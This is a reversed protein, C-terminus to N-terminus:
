RIIVVRGSLRETSTTATVFYVGTPVDLHIDLSYNTVTSIEKIIEGNIGTILVQAKEDTGSTINISFDGNAPNPKISINNATYNLINVGTTNRIFRVRSHSFDAIYINGARDLTIGTAAIGAMSALGGDGSFAISGNGAVTTIIGNSTAPSIKRVRYNYGDAVYLNGNNDAYVGCPSNLKATTAAISDGNYGAYGIGAITSIIGSTNVKRINNNDFDAVYINGSDDLAIGYPARLTAATAPGGDGSIGLVGGIGAITSIIGASSVKRVCNNEDDTIYVNCSDDIAVDHPAYLKALTAPGGDGSFGYAGTGAITTIIGATDIRRICCNSEDAFYLNGYKDFKLGAPTWIKANTALGGDGSLGPTGTGAITTIIGSTNVKRIRNNQWDSIYFNGLGDLAVFIPANLEANIAPISDGNYGATSDGAITTIIQAHVQHSWSLLFVIHLFYLKKKM